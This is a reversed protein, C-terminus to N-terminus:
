RVRDVFVGEREVEALILALGGKGRGELLRRFFSVFFVVFWNTGRLGRGM